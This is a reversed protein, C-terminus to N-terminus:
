SVGITRRSRGSEPPACPLGPPGSAAPRISSTLFPPALTVDGWDVDEFVGVNAPLGTRLLEERVADHGM